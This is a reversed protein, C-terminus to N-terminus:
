ELSTIWVGAVIVAAGLMTQWRLPEGLVFHAVVPVIVFALAVFPYAVALPVSRLLVVWLATAAAYVVLAVMLHWNLVWDSVWNVSKMASAALKFLIQGLALSAVNLVLLLIQRANM